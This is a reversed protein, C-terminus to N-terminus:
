PGESRLVAKLHLLWCLHISEILVNVPDTHSPVSYFAKYLNLVDGKEIEM